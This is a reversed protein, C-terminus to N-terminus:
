QKDGGWFERCLDIHDSLMVQFDSNSIKGERIADYWDVVKIGYKLETLGIAEMDDMFADKRWELDKM